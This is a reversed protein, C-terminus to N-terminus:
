REIDIFLFQFLECNVGDHNCGNNLFNYQNSLKIVGVISLVRNLAVESTYQEDVNHRYRPLGTSTFLFFVPHLHPSTM